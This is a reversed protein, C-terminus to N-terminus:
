RRLHIAAQPVAGRSRTATGGGPNTSHAGPPLIFQAGRGLVVAGGREGLIAMIRVLHRLYDGETFRQSTFGDTIFHDIASHIQADVGAILHERHGTRHAIWEVIERDFFPLSLLEAVREGLEAAGAGLPRSLAVCPLPPESVLSRRSFEWRRFQHDVLKEVGHSMPVGKVKIQAM